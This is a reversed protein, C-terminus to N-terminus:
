RLYMRSFSMTLFHNMRALRETKLGSPVWLSLAALLLVGFPPNLFSELVCRDCFVFVPREFNGGIVYFFLFV